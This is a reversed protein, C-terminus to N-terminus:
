PSGILMLDTKERLVSVNERTGKNTRTKAENAPASGRVHLRPPDDNVAGGTVTLPKKVIVALSDLPFVVKVMEEAELPGVAGGAPDKMEFIAKLTEPVGLVAVLVVPLPPIM